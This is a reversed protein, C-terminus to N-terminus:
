WGLIGFIRMFCVFNGFLVQEQNDFGILLRSFLGHCHLVLVFIVLPNHGFTVDILFNFVHSNWSTAFTLAQFCQSRFAVQFDISKVVTEEPDSTLYLIRFLVVFFHHAFGQLFVMFLFVLKLLRISLNLLTISLQGLAKSSVSALRKRCFKRQPAYHLLVPLLLQLLVITEIVFHQLILSLLGTLSEVWSFMTQGDIGPLSCLSVQEITQHSVVFHRRYLMIDVRDVSVGM